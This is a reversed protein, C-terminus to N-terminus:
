GQHFSMKLICSWVRLDLKRALRRGEEETYDYSAVDVEKTAVYSGSIPGLEEDYLKTNYQEMDLPESM